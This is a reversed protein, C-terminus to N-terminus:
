ELDTIIEPLQFTEEEYYQGRRKLESYYVSLKWEELSLTRRGSLTDPFLSKHSDEEKGFGRAFLLKGSQFYDRALSLIKQEQPTQVLFRKVNNNPGRKPIYIGM